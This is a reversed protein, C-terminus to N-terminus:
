RSRVDGAYGKKLPVVPARSRMRPRQETLMFENPAREFVTRGLPRFNASKIGFLFKSSGRNQETEAVIPV